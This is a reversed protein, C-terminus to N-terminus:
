IAFEKTSNRLSTQTMLEKVEPKPDFNFDKQASFEKMEIKPAEFKEQVPAPAEIIQEDPM